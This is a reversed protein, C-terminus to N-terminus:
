IAILPANTFPTPPVLREIGFASMEPRMGLNFDIRDIAEPSNSFSRGQFTRIHSM